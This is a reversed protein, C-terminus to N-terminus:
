MNQLDQLLQSIVIYILEAYVFSSGYFIGGHLKALSLRVTEMLRPRKLARKGIVSFTFMAMHAVGVHESYMVLRVFLLLLACGEVSMEENYHFIRLCM